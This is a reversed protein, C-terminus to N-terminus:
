ALLRLLGGIRDAEHRDVGAKGAFELWRADAGRAKELVRGVSGVGFHAVVQYLNELEFAKFNGGVSM